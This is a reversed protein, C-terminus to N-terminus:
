LSDPSPRVPPATEARGRRSRVIYVPRGKVESYIRGVYEGMLGLSLLQLGGLFLVVCLLSAYGPVDAGWILTRIVIGGAYFFAVLAIIGGLYSWLRLPLSSFSTLGELALNWLRWYNWSSHGNGREHRDFHIVTTRFGVWAFLGKMFRRREPLHKLADVVRRDMLRFDGVDAPLQVEALINHTRYYAWATLRKVIGDGSRTSRRALVVDYGERWKAILTPIVEPPDQMDADFPIVADGKACDIAATLAAEKGFNRSLEIVGLEPVEKALRTLHELSDDSSGDDVCIIEYRLGTDGLVKVLQGIVASLNEAENHVPIVVSVDVSDVPGAAAEHAREGATM